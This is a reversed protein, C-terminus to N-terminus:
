SLEKIFLEWSLSRFDNKNLFTVMTAKVNSTTFRFVFPTMDESLGIMLHFIFAM